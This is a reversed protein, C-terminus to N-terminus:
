NGADPVIENGIDQFRQIKSLITVPLAGLLATSFSESQHALDGQLIGAKKLGYLCLELFVIIETRNGVLREHLGNVVDLITGGYTTKAVFAILRNIM